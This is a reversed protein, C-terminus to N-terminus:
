HPQWWILQGGSGVAGLPALVGEGLSELREDHGMVWPDCVEGDASLPELFKGAGKCCGPTGSM